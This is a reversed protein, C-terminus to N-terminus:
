KKEEARKGGIETSVSEPGVVVELEACLSLWNDYTGAAPSVSSSKGGSVGNAALIERALQM